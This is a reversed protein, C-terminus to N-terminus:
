NAALPHMKMFWVRPVRVTQLAVREEEPMYVQRAVLIAPIVSYETGTSNRSANGAGGFIVVAGLLM